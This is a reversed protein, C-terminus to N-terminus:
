EILRGNVVSLGVIATLAVVEREGLTLYHVHRDAIGDEGSEIGIRGDDADAIIVVNGGRSELPKGAYLDMMRAIQDVPSQERARQIAGALEVHEAVGIGAADPHRAQTVRVAQEPQDVRVHFAEAARGDAAGAARRQAIKVVIEDGM